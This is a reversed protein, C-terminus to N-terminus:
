KKLDKSAPGNNPKTFINAAKTGTATTPVNSSLPAFPNPRGVPEPNIQTSFDKLSSFAPESFIAGDLKIARLTSLITVLEQSTQDTAGTTTLLTNAPASTNQSLVHWIVFAFVAIGGVM